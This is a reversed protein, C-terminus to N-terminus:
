SLKDLVTGQHDQIEVITTTDRSDHDTTEPECSGAPDVSILLISCHCESNHFSCLSALLFHYLPCFLYKCTTWGEPGQLLVRQGPTPVVVGLEAQANQDLVVHILQEQVLMQHEPSEEDLLREAVDMETQTQVQAPHTILRQGAMTTVVSAEQHTIYRTTHDTQVDMM